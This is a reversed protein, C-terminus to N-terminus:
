PIRLMSISRTKAQLRTHESQSVAGALMIAGEVERLLLDRQSESLREDTKVHLEVLRLDVVDRAKELAREYTEKRLGSVAGKVNKGLTEIPEAMLM